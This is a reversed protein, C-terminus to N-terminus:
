VTRVRRMCRQAEGRIARPGGELRQARGCVCRADEGELSEGDTEVEEDEGFAAGGGQATYVGVPTGLAHAAGRIPAHAAARAGGEGAGALAFFRAPPAFARESPPPAVHEADEPAGSSPGMATLADDGEEGWWPPASAATAAM